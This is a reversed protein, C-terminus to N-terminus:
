TRLCEHSTIVLSVLLSQLNTYFNRMQRWSATYVGVKEHEHAAVIKLLRDTHELFPELGQVPNVYYGKSVTLWEDLSVTTSLTQLEEIPLMEGAALLDAARKIFQAMEGVNTHNVLITAGLGHETKYSAFDVPHLLKVLESMYARDPTQVGGLASQRYELYSYRLPQLYKRLWRM